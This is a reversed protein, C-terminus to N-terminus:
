AGTRYGEFAYPNLLQREWFYNREDSTMSAMESVEQWSTRIADIQRDIIQRADDDSLLYQPAAEVCGALQSLRFGGTSIDMAQAAEGGSRPQPCIDYAPTLSLQSGDWFAAHNRAHDDTNGVLINFTIRAFLENTATRGDAFEHRIKEALDAYSAGRWPTEGLQLVTAASVVGLRQESRPPRDFRRVLLVDKELARHLQVPAVNLGARRALEMAAFEGKVVAYQDTTSSFKAILKREGDELLAKPRAGGVSSGHLLAEDLAASFPVGEELRQAANLLEELSADRERREYVDPSTQFDLSGIRDSGSELLFTLLGPDAADEGATRRRVIVRRGWADPASDAICGAVRAGSPPAIVGRRLPLEPLYLPIAQERGLYSQGYNFNLIDGVAELRGAVVPSSAGPLWVWVYAETPNSIM